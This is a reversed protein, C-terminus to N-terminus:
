ELVVIQGVDPGILGPVVELTHVFVVLSFSATYTQM